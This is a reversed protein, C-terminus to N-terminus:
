LNHHQPTPPPRAAELRQAAPRNLRPPKIKLFVDNEQQAQAWEEHEELVPAHAKEKLIPTSQVYSMIEEVATQQAAELQRVHERLGQITLAQREITANAELLLRELQTLRDTQWQKKLALQQLWNGGLEIPPLM